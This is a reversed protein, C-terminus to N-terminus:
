REAGVPVDDPDRETVPEEDEEAVPLPPERSETERDSSTGSTGTANEEALEEWYRSKGFCM